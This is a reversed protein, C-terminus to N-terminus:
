LVFVNCGKGFRWLQGPPPVYAVSDSLRPVVRFSWWRVQLTDELELWSRMAVLWSDVDVHSTSDVGQVIMRSLPRLLKSSDAAWCCMLEAAAEPAHQEDFAQRFLFTSNHLLVLMPPPLTDTLPPFSILGFIYFRCCFALTNTVARLGLTVSSWLSINLRCCFYEYCCFLEHVLVLLLM